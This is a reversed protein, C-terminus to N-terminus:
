STRSWEASAAPQVDAAVSTSLAGGSDQYVQVTLYDTSGNVDVRDGRAGVAFTGSSGAPVLVDTGNLPSGNLAWRVGRRGTVNGAFAVGAGILSIRGATQPTLRATNTVTSHWLDPDVDETDFALDTWTNNPISQAVTQRVRVDPRGLVFPGWTGGPSGNLQAATVVQGTVYVLTSPVTGV